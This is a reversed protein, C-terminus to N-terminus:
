LQFDIGRELKPDGMPVMNYKKSQMTFVVIILGIVLMPFAIEHYSFVPSDHFTPMVMWYL